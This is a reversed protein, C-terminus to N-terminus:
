LFKTNGAIEQWYLHFTQKVHHHLLAPIKMVPQRYRRQRGTHREHDQHHIFRWGTFLHCLNSPSYIKNIESVFHLTFFVSTAKKVARMWMHYSNNCYKVGKNPLKKMEIKSFKEWRRLFIVEGASVKFDFWFWCCILDMVSYGKMCHCAQLLCRSGLKFYSM